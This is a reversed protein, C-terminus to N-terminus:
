ISVRGPIKEEQLYKPAIFSDMATLAVNAVGVICAMANNGAGAGFCKWRREIVGM